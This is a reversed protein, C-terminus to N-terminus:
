RAIALTTRRVIVELPGSNHMKRTLTLKSNPTLGLDSLRQVIKSDGCIHSIIGTGNLELDVLPIVKGKVKCKPSRTVFIQSKQKEGMKNNGAKMSHISERAMPAQKRTALFNM